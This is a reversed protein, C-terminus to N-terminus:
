SERLTPKKCWINSYLWKCYTSWDEVYTARVSIHTFSHDSWPSPKKSSLLTVPQKIPKYKKFHFIVKVSAVTRWDTFISMCHQCDNPDDLKGLALRPLTAAM